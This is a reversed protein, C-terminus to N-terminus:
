KEEQFVANVEDISLARNWLRFDKMDGRLTHKYTGTGDQNLFWPFDSDLTGIGSIDDSIFALRGDERGLFLIGNGDRDASFAVFWWKGDPQYVLPRFDKRNEGDGLNMWLSTGSKGTNAAFAIGPNKGSVWAKNSFFCPDETQNEGTRFRFAVTFDGDKGFKVDRLAELKMGPSSETFRISEPLQFILGEEADKMSNEQIPNVRADLEAPAELGHHALIYAPPDCTQGQGKMKGPAVDKSSVFIPVTYCNQCGWVGHTTRIGGHDAIIVIMWDEDAFTKRARIAALIEGIKKDFNPLDNYYGDVFVSFGHRHGVIDMSDLYLMIADVDQGAKWVTGHDGPVDEAAGRILQIATDCLDMDAQKKLLDADCPIAADEGWNHLWATKMAPNARKLRQLYTPFEAYNGNKTQGNNLVGHKTATVGTAISVHNTASNPASDLNTHAEYTWAAKYGPAWTGDRVTDMVPTPVSYMTDSRLGDLMILLSKKEGAHITSAVLFLSFVSLFFVSIKNLHPFM